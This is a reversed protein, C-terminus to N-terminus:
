KINYRRKLERLVIRAIDEYGKPTYHVSNSADHENSIPPRATYKHLDLVPIYLHHLEWSIERNYDSVEIDTAGVVAKPIATTTLFLPRDTYARVYRQAIQVENDAYDATSVGLNADWIGNNWVIAYYNPRASLWTNINEVTYQSSEGNCPNHLIQYDPLMNNDIIAQSWGISISDGIVLIAPRGDPAAM